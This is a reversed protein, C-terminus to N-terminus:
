WESKWYGSGFPGVGEAWKTFESETGWKEYMKDESTFWADHPTITSKVVEASLSNKWEDFNKM